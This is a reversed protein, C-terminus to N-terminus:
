VCSKFYLLVKRYKICSIKKGYLFKLVIGISLFSTLIEKQSKRRRIKIWSNKRHFFKKSYKRHDPQDKTSYRYSCLYILRHRKILLNDFRNWSTFNKRRRIPMDICGFTRKDTCLLIKIVIMLICKDMLHIDM